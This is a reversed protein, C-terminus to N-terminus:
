NSRNTITSGPYLYEIPKTVGSLLRALSGQPDAYGIVLRDALDIILQNRIACTGPTVKKVSDPFPSIILMNGAELRAKIRPDWRRYMGRALVMILPQDGQLLIRLVDKEVKSHFGSIVCNSLHKQETAWAYVLLISGVNVKRSCFFGRKHNELLSKNGATQYSSLSPIM